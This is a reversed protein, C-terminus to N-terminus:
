PDRPLPGGAFHARTRSQPPSTAATAATPALVIPWYALTLLFLLPGSNPDTGHGTLIGGFNQGLWTLAALLMALSYLPKALRPPLLVALACLALLV